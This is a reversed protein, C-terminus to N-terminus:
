HHIESMPDDGAAAQKNVLALMVERPLETRMM